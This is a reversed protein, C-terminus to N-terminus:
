DTHIAYGQGTLAAALSRRVREVEPESTGRLIIVVGFHGERFFPYSGISVQDSLAQHQALLGAIESEKGDIRLSRSLMKRGKRLRPTVALVMAQCIEPVGATVIVNGIMFGPAKSVPNDILEGGEPIRAMLRRAPTLGKEGYHRRLIALAEEHESLPTDFARAISIATIDDHTPGIGGTTFVYDYRQRLANVADVIAREQDAVVRAERLEMGIETLYGALFALNRDRTRGSLIEDGIVLVAATVVPESHSSTM